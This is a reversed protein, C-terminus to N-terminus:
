VHSVVYYCFDYHYAQYNLSAVYSYNSHAKSLINTVLYNYKFYSIMKACGSKSILLSHYKSGSSLCSVIYSDDVGSIFHTYKNLYWNNISKALDSCCASFCLVHVNLNVRSFGDCVGCSYLTHVVLPLTPSTLLQSRKSCPPALHYPFCPAVKHTARCYACVVHLPPSWVQSPACGASGLVPWCPMAMAGACRRARQGHGRPWIASVTVLVNKLAFCLGSVIV